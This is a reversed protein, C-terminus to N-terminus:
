FITITTLMEFDLFTIYFDSKQSRFFFFSICPEVIIYYDLVLYCNEKQM